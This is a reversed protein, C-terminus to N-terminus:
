PYGYVLLTWHEEFCPDIEQWDRYKDIEFFFFFLIWYDRIPITKSLALSSFSLFSITRKKIFQLRKRETASEPPEGDFTFKVPYRLLDCDLVLSFFLFVLLLFFFSFPCFFGPRIVSWLMWKTIESIIECWLNFYDFYVILCVFIHKLVNYLWM